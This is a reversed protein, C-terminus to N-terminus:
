RGPVGDPAELPRRGEAEPRWPGIAWLAPDPRCGAELPVMKGTAGLARRFSDILDTLVNEGAPIGFYLM